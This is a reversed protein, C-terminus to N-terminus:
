SAKKAYTAHTVKQNSNSGWTVTVTILSLESPSYSNVCDRTWSATTGAPLKYQAPVSSPSGSLHSCPNTAQASNERMLQYAYNSAAARRSTEVNDNLVFSYLQYASFLLLAGVALTVLLEVVTFGRERKM